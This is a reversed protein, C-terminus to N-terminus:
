DPLTIKTQIQLQLIAEIALGVDDHENTTTPETCAAKIEAPANGM